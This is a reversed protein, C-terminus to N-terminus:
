EAAEAKQDFVVAPKYGTKALITEVVKDVELQALYSFNFYPRVISFKNLNVNNITIDVFDGKVKNVYEIGGKVGEAKVFNKVFHETAAKLGESSYANIVIKKGITCIIWDNYRGGDKSRLYDLAQKSEPRNTAGLLIEYKNTGDTNDATNKINVGLAGKMQKFLCSASATEDLESAQEPRIITYVSDDNQVYVVDAKSIISDVSSATDGSGDSDGGCGVFLTVAFLFCLTLALKKM